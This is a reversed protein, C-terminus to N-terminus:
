SEKVLNAYNTLFYDKKNIFISGHINYVCQTHSLNKNNLRFIIKLAFYQVIIYEFLVNLNHTM